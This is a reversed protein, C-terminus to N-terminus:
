MERGVAAAIKRIDAMIQAFVDPKISQQGDCLAHVPYNHVEIMVGDAGVAVAARALPEVM